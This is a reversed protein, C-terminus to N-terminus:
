GWRRKWARRLERLDDESWLQLSQDELRDQLQLQERKQVYAKM